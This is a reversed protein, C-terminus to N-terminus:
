AQIRVQHYSIPQDITEQRQHCIRCSPATDDLSHLKYQRLVARSRIDNKINCDTCDLHFFCYSIYVHSYILILDHYISQEIFNWSKENFQTTTPPFYFSTAKLSLSLKLTGTQFLVQTTYAIGGLGRSEWFLFLRCLHSFSLAPSASALYYGMSMIQSCLANAPIKRHLAKRKWTDM